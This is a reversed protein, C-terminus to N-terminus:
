APSRTAKIAKLAVSKQDKKLDAEAEAILSGVTKM